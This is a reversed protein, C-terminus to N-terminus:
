YLVFQMLIICINKIYDTKWKYGRGIKKQKKDRPHHHWWRKLGHEPPDREWRTNEEDPWQSSMNNLLQVRCCIFLDLYLM